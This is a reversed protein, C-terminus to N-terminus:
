EGAIMKYAWKAYNRVGHNDDNEAVRKLDNLAREDGIYGLLEAAYKQMWKDQDKLFVLLVLTADSNGSGILEERLSWWNTKCFGKRDSVWCKLNAFCVLTKIPTDGRAQAPLDEIVDLVQNYNGESIMKPGEQIIFEELPTTTAPTIGEEKDGCVGVVATAMLGLIMLGLLLARM